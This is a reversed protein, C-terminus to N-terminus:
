ADGGEQQLLWVCLNRAGQDDAWGATALRRNLTQPSVGLHGAVEKQTGGSAMADLAQWGLETRRIAGAAWLRLGAEARAVAPVRRPDDTDVAIGTISRKAREVARRASVLAPGRNARVSGPLPLDLEGAGIGVWWTRGRVLIAVLGMVAAADGTLGQVEDGATREFARDLAVGSTNLQELLAPVADDHSRSERQDVTIAYM